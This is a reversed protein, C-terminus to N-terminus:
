GGLEQFDQKARQRLKEPILVLKALDPAVWLRAFSQQLTESLFSEASFRQSLHLLGDLGLVAIKVIHEGVHRVGACGDRTDFPGAPGPHTDIAAVGVVSVQGENGE